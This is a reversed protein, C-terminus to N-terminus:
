GNLINTKIPALLTVSGTSLNEDVLFPRSITQIEQGESTGNKSAANSLEQLVKIAIEAKVDCM